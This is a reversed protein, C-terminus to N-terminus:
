NRNLWGVKESNNWTLSPEGSSGKAIAAASKKCAAHGEKEYV